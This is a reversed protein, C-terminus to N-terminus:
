RQSNFWQISHEFMPKETPGHETYFFDHVTINQKNIANNYMNIAMGITVDIPVVSDLSGHYFKIKSKPAWNNVLSNDNLYKNFQINSGNAVGNLFSQNFVSGFGYTYRYLMLAYLADNDNHNGELFSPFYNFPYRFYYFNNNVNAINKEYGCIMYSLLTAYISSTAQDSSNYKLMFYDYQSKLAYPGSCAGTAVLTLNTIPNEEVDRLFAVTVNAGESFGNLFLKGDNSVGMSKTVQIGAIIMDRVARNSSKNIFYPHQIAGSANYGIYDPVVTIFGASAYQYFMNGFSADYVDQDKFLTGHHYSLVSFVDSSNIAQPIFLTGSAKIPNGLLDSTDYILRYSKVSYKALSNVVPSTNSFNAIEIKTKTNIETISPFTSLSPIRNAGTNSVNTETKSPTNESNEDNSCSFLFIFCLIILVKSFISKSM